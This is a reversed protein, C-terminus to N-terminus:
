SSAQKDNTKPKNKKEGSTLLSTKTRLPIASINLQPICNSSMQMIVM